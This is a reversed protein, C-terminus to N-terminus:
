PHILSVTLPSSMTLDAYARADPLRYCDIPKKTSFSPVSFTDDNLADLLVQVRYQPENNTRFELGQRLWFVAVWPALRRWPHDDVWQGPRDDDM